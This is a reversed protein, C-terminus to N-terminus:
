GGNRHRELIKRWKWWNRLVIGMVTLGLSLLAAGSIVRVSQNADASTFGDYLLVAGCILVILGFILALDDRM